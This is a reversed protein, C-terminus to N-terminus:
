PTYITKSAGGTELQEVGVKESVTGTTQVKWAGGVVQITGMSRLAEILSQGTVAKKKLQLHHIGDAVLLMNNYVSTFSELEDVQKPYKAALTSVFQKTVSNTDKLNVVPATYQYSGANPDSQLAPTVSDAFGAYEVHVGDAVLQDMIEQNNGSVDGSTALYVLTNQDSTGIASAIQSVESSYDTATPSVQVDAVVKGGAKPVDTNIAKELGEGLPEETYLVVWRTYGEKQVAFPAYSAIQQNGLPLVSLLYPSLNYLNPGTAGPNIELVKDRSAIPVVASVPSTFLVQMVSVHHISIAQEAGTVAPAPLAQSDYYYNKISGAITHDKEINAIALNDLKEALVGYPAAATSLPVISAMNYVTGSSGASAVSGSSVVLVSALTLAAAGILAGSKGHIKM